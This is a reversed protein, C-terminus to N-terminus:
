LWSPARDGLIFPLVQLAFVYAVVIALSLGAVWGGRAGGRRADRIGRVALFGSAALVLTGIVGLGINAGQDDSGSLAAAGLLLGLVILLALSSVASKSIPANVTDGNDQSTLVCGVWVISNRHLVDRGRVPM